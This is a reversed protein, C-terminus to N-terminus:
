QQPERETQVNAGEQSKFVSEVIPMPGGQDKREQEKPHKSDVFAKVM